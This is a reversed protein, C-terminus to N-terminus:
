EGHPPAVPAVPAAPAVPAVPAASPGPKPTLDFPRAPEYEPPPLDPLPKPAGSCAAAALTFGFLM